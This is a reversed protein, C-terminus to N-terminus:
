REVTLDHGARQRATEAAQRFRRSEALYQDHEAQDERPLHGQHRTTVKEALAAFDDAAKVLEQSDNPSLKIRVLIAEAATRLDGANSGYYVLRNYCQRLRIRNVYGSPNHEVVSKQIGASELFAAMAQDRQGLRWRAKGIREWAYSLWDNRRPDDPAARAWAEITQRGLEAQELALNPEGLQNALASCEL